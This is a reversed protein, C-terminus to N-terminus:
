FPEYKYGVSYISHILEQDSTLENLKARLNRIHSDITRDSVVRYDQYVRDMIHQRSFIRNPNDFFLKFLNFETATLQLVKSAFHVCMQSEVLILDNDKKELKNLRRLRAKIRAVVEKASYPKCVYDDAGSDLGILRDIEDIKATAMIIPIDCFACIEKCITLGDKGPLMWDLLIVDPQHEKVWQVVGLGTAFEKTLYGEAHLYKAMVHSLEVEDEVILIKPM